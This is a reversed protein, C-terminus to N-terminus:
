DTDLMGEDLVLEATLNHVVITYEGPELEDLDLGVSEEFGVLVLTCIADVPREAYVRIYIRDGQVFQSIGALETCGDGLFGQIMVTIQVPDSELILVEIEEVMARTLLMKDEAIGFQGPEIAVEDEESLTLTTTVDGVAVTYEGAELGAINLPVTYTFPVLAMTCMAQPDRLTNVTVIIRDGDLAQTVSHLSTCGDRFHGQIEVAYAAPPTARSIVRVDDILADQGVLGNDIIGDDVIDHMALELTATVGNVDVTYEGPELDVVDLPEVHVFPVLAMTCLADDDRVTRITILIRDDEVTQTVSEIETCGDRLNGRIEVAYEFPPEGETLVVVQDVLADETVPEVDDPLDVLEFAATVGHVEVTYEGPDLGEVDLPEVHVFPVLAMTCIADPDRFTEVTVVIRGNEVTQTVSEIETCGDRLNGRIEVAYETPPVGETLVTVQDILAGNEVVPTEPLEFPPVPTPEVPM